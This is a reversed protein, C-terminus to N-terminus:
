VGGGAGHGLALVLRPEPARYWHIRAEGAPTDVSETQPKKTTM